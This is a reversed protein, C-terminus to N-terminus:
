PLRNKLFRTIVGKNLLISVTQVRQIVRGLLHAANISASRVPAVVDKEKPVGTVYMLTTTSVSVYRPLVVNTM